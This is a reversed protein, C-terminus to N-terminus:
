TLRINGSNDQRVSDGALRIRPPVVAITLTKYVSTNATAIVQVTGAGEKLPVIHGDPTLSVISNDGIFLLSGFGFAPLARAEIKPRATNGLTISDPCYSIELKTPQQVNQSSLLNVLKEVMARTANSKQTEATAAKTAADVGALRKDVDATIEAVNTDLFLALANRVSGCCEILDVFLSGVMEATVSKTIVADRITEARKRLEATEIAAVRNETLNM